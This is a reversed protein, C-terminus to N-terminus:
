FSFGYAIAPGSFTEKLREGAGTELEMEFHRYGGYFHHVGTRYVGFMGLSWTGESDGGSLDASVVLRWHEGIPALYRAGLLIDTISTDASAEIDPLGPPVPNVNLRFDTDVYRLGGYLELDTYAEDGPSWVAALDMATMDLDANLDALTNSSNDGVGMFSVDVFGGFDDGQAEVRGQFAMELKDVVDSFDAGGSVDRTDVEIDAAWLYIIGIWDMGASDARASGAVLALCLACSAAISPSAAPRNTGDM